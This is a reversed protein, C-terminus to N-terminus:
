RDKYQLLLQYLKETEACSYLYDAQELVEEARVCVACRWLENLTRRLECVPPCLHQDPSQRSGKELALVVASSQVRHFAEYGLSSLAPLGLLFAAGGSQVCM